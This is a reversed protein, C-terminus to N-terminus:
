SFGILVQCLCLQEWYYAPQTQCPGLQLLSHLSFHLV